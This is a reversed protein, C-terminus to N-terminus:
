EESHSRGEGVKQRVPNEGTVGEISKRVLHEEYEQREPHSWGRTEGEGSKQGLSHEETGWEEKRLGEKLHYNPTRVQVISREMVVTLKLVTLRM